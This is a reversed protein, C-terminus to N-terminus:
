HNPTMTKIAKIQLFFIGTRRTTERIKRGKRGEREKKEGKRRENIEREKRENGKWRNRYEKKSKRGGEREVRERDGMARREREVGKMGKEDKEGLEWGSIKGRFIKIGKATRAKERCCFGV